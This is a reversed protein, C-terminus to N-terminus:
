QIAEIRFRTTRTDEQYESVVDALLIGKEFCYRAVYRALDYKDTDEATVFLYRGDHHIM